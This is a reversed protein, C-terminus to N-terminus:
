RTARGPDAVRGAARRRRNAGHLDDRRRTRPQQDAAVRRPDDGGDRWRDRGAGRRLGAGRRRPVRAASRGGASRLQGPGAHARLDVGLDGSEPLAMTVTGPTGAFDEFEFEVSEGRREDILTELQEVSEVFTGDVAVVVLGAPLGAQEAVGDATVESVYAGTASPLAGERELALASAVIKSTDMLRFNLDRTEDPDREGYVQERPLLKIDDDLKGQLWGWVTVERVSVTAFLMEGDSPYETTGDVDIREETEHLGGPAIAVQGVTVFGSAALM